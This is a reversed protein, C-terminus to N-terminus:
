IRGERLNLTFLVSIVSIFGAAYFSAHPSYFQWLMGGLLPGLTFGLRISTQRVGIAVGRMSQSVLNIIYSMSAPWTASRFGTIAMYVVLLVYYDTMFPYVIFFVPILALFWLMIRRGGYRDTLFGSPIQALLTALGGGVSFYFGVMTKTLGFRGTLYLPIVLNALGISASSLLNVMSFAVVSGRLDRMKFLQIYRNEGRPGEPPPAEVDRVMLLPPLGLLFLLATAYFAYGWGYVDALYGGIAPGVINGIPYMLNMFGFVRGFASSQSRESIFLMRAPLLFGWSANYILAWPTAHEWRTLTSFAILPLVGVITSLLMIKKAGHRQALSPSFLMLVTAVLGYSTIILSIEAANAGLDQLFLPFLPEVVMMGISYSLGVLFLIWLDRGLYSVRGTM